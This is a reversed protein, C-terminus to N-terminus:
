EWSERVPQYKLSIGYVEMTEATTAGSELKFAISEGIYGALNIAAGNQSIFGYGSNAMSIRTEGSNSIASTSGDPYLMLDINGSSQAKAKLAIKRVKFSYNLEGLPNFDVTKLYSNIANGYDNTGYDM